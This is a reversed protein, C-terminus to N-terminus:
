TIDFVHILSSLLDYEPDASVRYLGFVRVIKNKTKLKKKELSDADIENSPHYASADKIKSRHGLTGM